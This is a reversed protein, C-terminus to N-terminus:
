RQPRFYRKLTWRAVQQGLDVGTEVSQRYHIGGWVRANIIEQVLDSTHEYHRTPHLLNPV